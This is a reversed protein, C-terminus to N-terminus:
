LRKQQPDDEDSSVEDDNLIVCVQKGKGPAPTPDFGGGLSGGHGGTPVGGCGRTLGGGRDHGGTAGALGGARSIVV